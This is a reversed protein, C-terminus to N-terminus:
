TQTVTYSRNPSTTPQTRTSEDSVRRNQLLQWAQKTQLEQVAKVTSCQATPATYVYYFVDQKKVILTDTNKVDEVKVGKILTGAKVQTITGLPASNLGCANTVAPTSPNTAALNQLGPSTFSAVQNGEANKSVYYYADKADSPKNMQVGFENIKLITTSAAAATLTDVQAQLANVQAGLDGVKTRYAQWKYYGFGITILLLIIALIAVIMWGKGGKKVPMPSPNSEPMQTTPELGSAQPHVQQPEM